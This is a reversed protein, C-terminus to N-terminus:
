GPPNTNSFTVRVSVRERLQTAVLVYTLTVIAAESDSPDVEVRVTEVAIRPEWRALGKEIREQILHHTAVINPEFLFQQLGAGFEPLRIRERGQTLLIVRISEQINLEGASLVIRGDAGLRPPFSIGQGFIQAATM